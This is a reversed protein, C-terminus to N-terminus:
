LIGEAGGPWSVSESSGPVVSRMGGLLAVAHLMQERQAHAERVDRAFFGRSQDDESERIQVVRAMGHAESVLLLQESEGPAM